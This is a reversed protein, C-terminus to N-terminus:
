LLPVNKIDNIECEIIQFTREESFIESLTNGSNPNSIREYLCVHLLSDNKNEYYVSRTVKLRANDYYEETELSGLVLNEIANFILNEANFIGILYHRIPIDISEYLNTYEFLLKVKM